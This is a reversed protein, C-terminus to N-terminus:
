QTLSKQTEKELESMEININKETQEHGAYGITDHRKRKIRPM